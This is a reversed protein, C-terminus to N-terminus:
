TLALCKHAYQQLVGCGTDSGLPHSPAVDFGLGLAGKELGRQRTM